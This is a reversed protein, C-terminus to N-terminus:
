TRLGTPPAPPEGYRTPPGRSGRGSPAGRVLVPVPGRRGGLAGGFPLPDGRWGAEALAEGVARFEEWQSRSPAQPSLGVASLKDNNSLDAMGELRVDFGWLDRPMQRM